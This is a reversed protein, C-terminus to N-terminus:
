LIYSQTGIENSHCAAASASALTRAPVDSAATALAEVAELGAGGRGGLGRSCAGPSNSRHTRLCPAIRRRCPACVTLAASLPARRVPAPIPVPAPRSQPAPRSTSPSFDRCHGPHVGQPTYFCPSGELTPGHAPTDTHIPDLVHARATNPATTTARRHRMHARRWCCLTARMPHAAHHTSEHPAIARHACSACMRVATDSHRAAHADRVRSPPAHGIALPVLIAGRGAGHAARRCAARAVDSGVRFV